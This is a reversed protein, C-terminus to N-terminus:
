VQYYDRVLQTIGEGKNLSHRSYPPNCLIVKISQMTRDIDKIDRYDLTDGLYLNGGPALPPIYCPAHLQSGCNLPERSPGFPRRLSGAGRP